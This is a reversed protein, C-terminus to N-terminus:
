HYLTRKAHSLGRTRVGADGNETIQINEHEYYIPLPCNHFEKAPLSLFLLIEKRKM